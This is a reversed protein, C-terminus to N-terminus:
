AARDEPGGGTTGGAGAGGPGPGVGVGPGPGVGVGVGVGGPGDPGLEFPNQWHDSKPGHLPHEALQLPCCNAVRLMKCAVSQVLHGLRM